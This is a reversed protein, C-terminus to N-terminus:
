RSHFLFPILDLFDSRLETVGFVDLVLHTPAKRLGAVLEGFGQVDTLHRVIENLKIKVSGPALM